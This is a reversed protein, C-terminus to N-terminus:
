HGEDKNGSKLMEDIMKLNSQYKSHVLSELLSLSKKKESKSLNFGIECAIMQLKGQQEDLQTYLKVLQENVNM